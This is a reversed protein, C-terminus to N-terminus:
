NPSHYQKNAEVGLFELGVKKVAGMGQIALSELSPLKGFPGLCECSHFFNLELSKLNVLCTIWGPFVTTGYFYKITLRKLNPHPQLGELLATNNYCGLVTIGCGKKSSRGTALVLCHLTELCTFKRLGKPLRIACCM